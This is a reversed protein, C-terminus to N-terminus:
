FKLSLMIFKVSKAIGYCHCGADSTLHTMFNNYETESILKHSDDLLFINLKLDLIIFNVGNM